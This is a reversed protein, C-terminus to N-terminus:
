RLLIQMCCRFSHFMYFSTHSSYHAKRSQEYKAALIVLDSSEEQIRIYDELDSGASIILLSQLFIMENLNKINEM